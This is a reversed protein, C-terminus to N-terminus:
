ELHRPIIIAGEQEKEASNGRLLQTGAREAWEAGELGLLGGGGVPAPCTQAVQRGHASSAQLSSLERGTRRGADCVVGNGESNVPWRKGTM